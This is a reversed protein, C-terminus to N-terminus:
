EQHLRLQKLQARQARRLLSRPPLAVNQTVRENRAHIPPIVELMKQTSLLEDFIECFQLEPLFQNEVPSVALESM